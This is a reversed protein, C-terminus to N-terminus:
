ARKRTLVSVGCGLILLAVGAMLLPENAFGTFALERPADTAVGNPLVDFPLTATLPKGDKGTGELLVEYHGIPM